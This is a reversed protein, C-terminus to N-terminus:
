YSDGVLLLIGLTWCCSKNCSEFDNIHFSRLSVSHWFANKSIEDAELRRNEVCFLKDTFALVNENIMCVRM